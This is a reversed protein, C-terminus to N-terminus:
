AAASLLAVLRNDSGIAKAIAATVTKMAEKSMDRLLDTKFEKVAEQARQELEKSIFTSVTEKILKERTSSHGLEGLAKDMQQKVIERVEQQKQDWSNGTVVIKENMVEALLRPMEQQALEKIQEGCKDRIINKLASIISSKLDTVISAAAIELAKNIAETGTGDKLLTIIKQVDAESTSSEEDCDEYEEEEDYYDSM